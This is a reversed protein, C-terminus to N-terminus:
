DNLILWNIQLNYVRADCMRACACARVRVCMCCAFRTTRHACIRKKVFVSVITTTHVDKQREKSDRSQQQIEDDRYLTSLFPFFFFSFTLYFFFSHYLSLFLSYIRNHVYTYIYDLSRLLLDYDYRIVFLTFFCFHRESPVNSARTKRWRLSSLSLRMKREDDRGMNSSRSVEKWVCKAFAFRM